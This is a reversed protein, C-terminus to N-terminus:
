SPLHKRAGVYNNVAFVGFRIARKEAVDETEFGHIRTM